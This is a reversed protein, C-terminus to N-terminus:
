SVEGNVSSLTTWFYIQRCRTIENMYFCDRAVIIWKTNKSSHTNLVYFFWIGTVVKLNFITISSWCIYIWYNNVTDQSIFNSNLYKVLWYSKHSEHFITWKQIRIFMKHCTCCCKPLIILALVTEFFLVIVLCLLVSYLPQM